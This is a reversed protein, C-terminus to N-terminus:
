GKTYGWMVNRLDDRKLEVDHDWKTFLEVTNFGHKVIVSYANPSRLVMDIIDKEKEGSITQIDKVFENVKDQDQIDFDFMWKNEAACEKEAALSAIKQEISCLNTDPNDFLYHMLKRYVKKPNRKNVSAYMRCMEGPIGGQVFAHFRADLTPDTDPNRGSIFAERREKFGDLDKNDKNRSVFVIVRIDKGSDLENKFNGM